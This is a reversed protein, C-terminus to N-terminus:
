LLMLHVQSREVVEELVYVLVVVSDNIMLFKPFQDLEHLEFVQFGIWSVDDILLAGIFENLGYIREIM